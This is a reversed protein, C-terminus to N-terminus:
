ISLTLSIGFQMEFLTAYIPFTLCRGSVRGADAALERIGAWLTNVVPPMSSFALSALSTERVEEWSQAAPNWGPSGAPQPLLRVNGPV